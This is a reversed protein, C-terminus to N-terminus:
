KTLKYILKYGCETSEFPKLKKIIKLVTENYVTFELKEQNKCDLNKPDCFELTFILKKDTKNILCICYDGDIFKIYLCCEDGYKEFLQTKNGTQMLESIIENNTRNMKKSEYYYTLSSKTPLFPKKAYSLKYIKQNPELEMFIENESNQFELNELEFIFKGIFKTNESKNIFEYLLGLDHEYVNYYFNECIQTNGNLKLKSNKLENMIIKYPKKLANVTLFKYQKIERNTKFVIIKEYNSKIEIEYQNKSFNEDSNIFNIENCNEFINKHFLAIESTLNVYLVAGYFIGSKSLCDYQFINPYIEIKQGNKLACSKLVSKLYNLKSVQSNIEALKIQNKTFVTFIFKEHNEKRADMIKIFIAYKGPKKLECELLPFYSITLSSNLFEYERTVSNQYGLCFGVTVAKKDNKFDECIQFYGFDENEINFELLFECDNKETRLEKYNQQYNDLYKCITVGSFYKYFTSFNICFKGELKKGLKQQNRFESLINESKGWPNQLYVMKQKRNEAFKIIAYSHDQVLGLRMFDENKLLNQDKSRLSSATMPFNLKEYKTLLNWLESESFESNKLSIVPFGTLFSFSFVSNLSCMSHYSGLFKAWCKELLMPWIEFNGSKAFAFIESQSIYPFFGDIIMETPIGNQHIKISYFDNPLKRIESNMFLQKIRYSQLGLSILSSVFYCNGIFGQSIKDINVYNCISFNKADLPITDLFNKWTYKRYNKLDTEYSKQIQLDPNILSNLCLPFNSDVFHGFLPIKKPKTAQPISHIKEEM